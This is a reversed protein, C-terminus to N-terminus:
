TLVCRGSGQNMRSNNLIGALLQPDGGFANQKAREWLIWAMNGINEATEGDKLLPYLEDEDLASLLSKGWENNDQLV